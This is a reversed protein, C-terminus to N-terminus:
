HSTYHVFNTVKEKFILIINFSVIIKRLRYAIGGSIFSSIFWLLFFRNLFSIQNTNRGFTFIGIIQLDNEKFRNGIIIHLFDSSSDFLALYSYHIKFIHIFSNGLSHYIKEGASGKGEIANRTLNRSAGKDKTGRLNIHATLNHFAIAIKLCLIKLVIVTKGRVM